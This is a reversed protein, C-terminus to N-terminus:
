PKKKAAPVAAPVAASKQPPGKSPFFGAMFGVAPTAWAPENREYIWNFGVITVVIFTVATLVVPNMKAVKRLFLVLLILAVVAIGLRLWFEGPIARLKDLTSATSPATTVALLLM